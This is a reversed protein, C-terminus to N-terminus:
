VPSVPSLLEHSVEDILRKAIAPEIGMYGGFRVAMNEYTNQWHQFEAPSRTTMLLRKVENHYASMGRIQNLYDVTINLRDAIRTKGTYDNWCIHAIKESLTRIDNM